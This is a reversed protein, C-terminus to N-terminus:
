VLDVSLRDVGPMSGVPVRKNRGETVFIPWILDGATLVNEATLRRSWASKRNRRMRVAPYRGSGALAEAGSAAADDPRERPAARRQHALQQELPKGLPKM